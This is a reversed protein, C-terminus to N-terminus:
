REFPSAPKFGRAEDRLSEWRKKLAANSQEVCSRSDCCPWYTPARLENQPLHELDGDSLKVLYRYGNFADWAVSRIEGSKGYHFGRAVEVKDGDRFDMTQLCSGAALFALYCLALMLNLLLVLAFCSGVKDIFKM